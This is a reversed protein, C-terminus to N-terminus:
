EGDGDNLCIKHYIKSIHQQFEDLTLDMKMTNCYRCCPAVNDSEYGISNDIRDIGNIPNDKGGCYVCPSITILAFDLFSINFTLNDNNCRVKYVNFRDRISSYHEFRNKYDNIQIKRQIEVEDMNRYYRESVDESDCERCYYQLKDASRKNPGFKTISLERKCRCCIKFDKNVEM